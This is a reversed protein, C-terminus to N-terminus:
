QRRGHMEHYHRWRAEADQDFLDPVCCSFDPTCEDDVTNHYPHGMAWKLTQARVREQYRPDNPDKQPHMKVPPM